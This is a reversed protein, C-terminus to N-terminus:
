TWTPDFQDLSGPVLLSGKTDITTMEWNQQKQRYQQLETDSCLCEDLSDSIDTEDIGTGIFVLEQRRDGFEESVFDEAIIREYEKPDTFYSKMQERSITGWWKGATTIGFHKGAHSWYMATNHRWVDNKSGSWKQPALWCFGKSRLVGVFPSQERKGGVTYGADAAELLLEIDLEDKIPVPWQNLLSLLRQTHFPRDRKYVFNTIGLQDTSTSHSHSHSHSTDTCAEDACAADAHNHSHSHSTDTCAPEECVAAHDHSHSHSTDTCAPVDCVAAAAHDHSHSHSTDTCAPEECVAAAAVHDHSHSHSTDTCGPEACDKASEVVKVSPGLIQQPSIKGFKVVELVADKNLGRAVSSAIKVQAEGALDLKNILIIDAAEVQEVMLETVKRNGSCDDGEETWGKRSGAVDYTMFDTGFTCADVLTVIKSLDTLKTAPHNQLKAQQWNSKIAVPDAVGSLEVVLADFDRGQLISDVSTLLEDALSCCACGNQLEVIGNNRQSILKADINVSAMDNVIVGIKAGDTNELLNQLTSTKGAGLFGSLLIMPIKPKTSFLRTSIRKSSQTAFAHVLPLAFALMILLSPSLPRM